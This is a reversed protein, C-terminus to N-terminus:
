CNCNKAPIVVEDGTRRANPRRAAQELCGEGLSGRATSGGVETLCCDQTPLCGETQCGEVLREGLLRCGGLRRGQCSGVPCCGALYPSEALSQLKLQCGERGQFCCM